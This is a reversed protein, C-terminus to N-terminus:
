GAVRWHAAPEELQTRQTIGQLTLETMDDRLTARQADLHKGLEKLTWDKDPEGRLLKVIAEHRDAKRAHRGDTRAPPADAMESHGRAHDHRIGFTGLSEAPQKLHKAEVVDAGPKGGLGLVSGLGATLWNSGYVDELNKPTPNDSNGKRHHHLGVWGIGEALCEQVAENISAGTAENSLDPALDKYSDVFIDTAGHEDRAWSALARPNKTLSFPLPGRWVVIRADLQERDEESVMRRWARAIQLPRDMALYLVRGTTPLVPMGLLEDTVGARALVLQQALTTKGVGQPGVIMLGEGAVWLPSEHHGWVTPLREPLDLVFSGGTVIGRQANAQRREQMAAAVEEVLDQPWAAERELQEELEREVQRYTEVAERQEDTWAQKQDWDANAAEWLDAHVRGTTEDAFKIEHPTPQSEIKM